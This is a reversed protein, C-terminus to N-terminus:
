ELQVFMAVTHLARENICFYERIAQIKASLCRYLPLRDSAMVTHLYVPVSINALVPAKVMSRCQNYPM